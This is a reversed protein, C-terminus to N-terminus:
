RAKKLALELGHRIATMEDGLKDDYMDNITKTSPWAKLAARIATAPVAKKQQVAKSLAMLIKKAKANKQTKAFDVITKTHWKDLFRSLSATAEKRSPSDPYKGPNQLMDLFDINGSETLNGANEMSQALMASFAKGLDKKSKAAKAKPKKATSKKVAKKKPTEKKDAPIKDMIFPNGGVVKGRKNIAVKHGSSTTRFKVGFKAYTAKDIARQKRKSRAKAEELEENELDEAMTLATVNIEGEALNNIATTLCHNIETFNM